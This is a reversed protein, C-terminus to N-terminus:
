VSVKNMADYAEELESNKQITEYGNGQYESKALFNFVKRPIGTRVHLDDFVEKIEAKMEDITHFQEYLGVIAGKIEKLTAEDSPMGNWQVEVNEKKNRAM